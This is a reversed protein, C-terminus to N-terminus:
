AAGAKLQLQTDVLEPVAGADAMAKRIRELEPRLRGDVIGARGAIAHPSLEDDLLKAVFRYAAKRAREEDHARM